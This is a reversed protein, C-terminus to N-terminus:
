LGYQAEEMELYSSALSVDISLVEAKAAYLRFATSLGAFAHDLLREHPQRPLLIHFQIVAVGNIHRVSAAVFRLLGAARLLMLGLSWRCKLPMSALNDCPLNVSIWIGKSCYEVSAQYFADPVTLDVRIQGPKPKM